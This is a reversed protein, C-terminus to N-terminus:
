AAHARWGKEFALTLTACLGPSSVLLSDQTSGRFDDGSWNHSGILVQDDCLLIKSHNTRRSRAGWRVPIRLQRLRRNAIASSELISLSDNSGSVMVRVDVGRRKAAQLQRLLNDVLFQRAQRNLDIIFMTCLCRTRAGAILDNAFRDYRHDAVPTVPVDDFQALKRQRAV